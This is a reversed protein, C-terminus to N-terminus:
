CHRTADRHEVRLRDFQGALCTKLAEVVAVSRHRGGTCGIAITLSSKGEDQYLPYLYEVLGLVKEMFLPTSPLSMVYEYVERDQGTKPRLNQVYYPNPCIGCMLVILNWLFAM